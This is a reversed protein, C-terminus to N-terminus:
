HCTRCLWSWYFLEMTNRMKQEVYDKENYAPIFLTVEPQFNSSDATAKNKTFLRKIKVLIFLIVGYGIYTYFITFLLIWFLLKLFEM